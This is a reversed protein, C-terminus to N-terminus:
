RGRIRWTYANTVYERVQKGASDFEIFKYPTRTAVLVHKNPLRFAHMPTNVAVSWVEKGNKDYEVVKARNSCVLVNGNDEIEIQYLAGAPVNTTAIEKGKRDMRVYQNRNTVFVIEGNSLHRGARIVENNRPISLVEKGAKDFEVIKNQGVVFTNGNRLREAQMPYFDLKKEWKINGKEDRETVRMGSYETVLLRDKGVWRADYPTQLGTLTFRTKNDKDLEVIQGNNSQVLLVYGLYPARVEVTSPDPMVAVKKNDDWWKLWAAARETRKDDGAPLDKPPNDRALRVLFDEAPGAQDAPLADILRILTPVAEKERAAALALAVRLRVLNDKESKPDLRKRIEDLHDALAGTTLAAGAVARRSPVKDTLAKIVAPDAKGNTFTVANLATQLSELMSEDEAFPVYNLIAQAAGKPKRLAILRPVTPSLPTKADAELAALLKKSRTRIELDPNKLAARLLPMIMPGMKKLDTEADQRVDFSDDGLKEILDNAKTTKEETLTRKELEKILAPGESDTWWKAWADRAKQKSVDDDGLNAKPSQDGALDSLFSEVERGQELPLDGLLAILTSVAKADSARGLALAARLRVSPSKDTLLKRLKDRPEAKGGACLAAIAAARRLPHSDALAEIMAPDPKGRDKGESVYAVGALAAKVEAMVNDNEVHPLYALLAEATGAPRRAVLLRVAAATVTSEDELIPLLKKALHTATDQHDGRSALRVKPLAPIGIAVLQQCAKQRDSADKAGLQEILENLKKPEVEGRARTHLFEVIGKDDTGQYADKLKQEDSKASDKDDGQAPLTAALLVLAAASLLL